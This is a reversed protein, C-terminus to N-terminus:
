WGYWGQQQEDSEGTAPLAYHQAGQAPGRLERMTRLVELQVLMAIPDGGGRQAGGNELEGTRGWQANPGSIWKGSGRGARMRLSLYGIVGLAVALLTALIIVAISGVTQGTASVTAATAIQRTAAANNAMAFLVAVLMLIALVLGLVWLIQKFM